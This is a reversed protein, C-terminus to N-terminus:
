NYIQCSQANIQQTSYKNGTHSRFRQLSFLSPAIQNGLVSLADLYTKNYIILTEYYTSM